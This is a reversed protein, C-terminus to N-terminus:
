ALVQCAVLTLGTCPLVCVLSLTAACSYMPNDRLVVRFTRTQTLNSDKGGQLMCPLKCAGAALQWPLGQRDLGMIVDHADNESHRLLMSQVESMILSHMFQATALSKGEHCVIHCKIQTATAPSPSHPLRRTLRVKQEQYDAQGSGLCDHHPM